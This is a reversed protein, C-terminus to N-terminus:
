GLWWDPPPSTEGGSGGEEPFQKIETIRRTLQKLPEDELQWCYQPPRISTIVIRKSRFQAPTYRIKVILPYRDALTLFQTFKMHSGRFDDLIVTEEGGYNEWNDPDHQSKWYADPWHEKCYRSKGSGSPGYIWIVEMPWDRKPQTRLAIRDLFKYYRFCRSPESLMMGTSDGQYLEGLDTVLSDLDKRAGPEPLTGFEWFDGGKKCYDAAQKHTGRMVEVHAKFLDKHVAKFSRSNKFCIFGQIHPTGSDGVEFGMVHFTRPINKLHTTQDTTYNNLTYCINRVKSPPM